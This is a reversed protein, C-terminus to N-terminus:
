EYHYNYFLSRPFNHYSNKLSNQQNDAERQYPHNCFTREDGIQFSNVLGHKFALWVTRKTFLLPWRGLQFNLLDIALNHVLTFHFHLFCSISPCDLSSYVSPKSSNRTGGKSSSISLSISQKKSEPTPPRVTTEHIARWSERLHRRYSIWLCFFKYGMWSWNATYKQRHYSSGQGPPRWSPRLETICRNPLQKPLLWSFSSIGTKPTIQGSSRCGNFRRGM